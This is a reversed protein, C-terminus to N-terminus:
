QLFLLDPLTNTCATGVTQIKFKTCSVLHAKYHNSIILVHILLLQSTQCGGMALCQVMVGGARVVVVGHMGGVEVEVTGRMLAWM